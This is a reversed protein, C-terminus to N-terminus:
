KRGEARVREMQVFIAALKRNTADLKRAMAELQAQAQLTTYDLLALEDPTVGAPCTPVAQRVEEALKTGRSKARARLAKKQSAELYIQSLEMTPM